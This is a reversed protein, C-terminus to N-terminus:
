IKILIDPLSDFLILAHFVMLCMYHLNEMLYTIQIPPSDQYSEILGQIDGTCREALLFRVEDDLHPTEFHGALVTTNYISNMSCLPHPSKESNLQCTINSPIPYSHQKPIKKKKCHSIETNYSYNCISVNYCTTINQTISPIIIKETLM